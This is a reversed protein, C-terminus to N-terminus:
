GFPHAALPVTIFLIFSVGLTLFHMISTFIMFAKMGTTTTPNNWLLINSVLGVIAFAPEAFFLGLLLLTFLFKAFPSEQLSIPMSTCVAQLIAFVGLAFFPWLICILPAAVVFGRLRAERAQEKQAQEEPTPIKEPEAM